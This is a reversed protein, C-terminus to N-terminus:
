WRFPQSRGSPALKVVIFGLLGLGGVIEFTTHLFDVM